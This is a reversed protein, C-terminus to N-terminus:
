GLVLLRALALTPTLAVAAPVAAVPLAVAAVTSVATLATLAAVALLLAVAPVLLLALLALLALAATAAAAVAPAAVVVAIAAAPRVEGLQRRQVGLVPQPQLGLPRLQRRPDDVQDRRDALALAAQDDRRGLGALRHHQLGDGVRDRPVVGLAVQHHDQDVLP